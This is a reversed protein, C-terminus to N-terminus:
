PVINGTQDVKRIVHGSDPDTATLNFSLRDANVQLDFKVKSNHLSMLPFPNAGPGSYVGSNWTYTGAAPYFSSEARITEANMMIVEAGAKADGIYKATNRTGLFKPIAIASLLGLIALVLLLEILTYGRDTRRM